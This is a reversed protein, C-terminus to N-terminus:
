ARESLQDRSILVLDIKNHKVQFTRDCLHDNEKKNSNFSQMIEKEVQM